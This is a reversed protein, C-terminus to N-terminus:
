EKEALEGKTCERAIADPYNINGSAKWARCWRQMEQKECGRKLLGGGRVESAM